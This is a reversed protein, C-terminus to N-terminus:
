RTVRKAPPPGGWEIAFGLVFWGPNERTHGSISGVPTNPSTWGAVGVRGTATPSETKASLPGVFAPDHRVRPTEPYYDADSPRTAQYHDGPAVVVPERKLVPAPARIEVQQQAAVPAVTLVLFALAAGISRGRM